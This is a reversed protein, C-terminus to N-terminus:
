PEEELEGLRWSVSKAYGILACGGHLYRHTGPVAGPQVRGSVCDHLTSKSVEYQSTAARVPMGECTARLAFEMAENTWM